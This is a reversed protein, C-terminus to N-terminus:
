TSALRPAVVSASFWLGISAVLWCTDGASLEIKELERRHRWTRLAIWGLGILVPLMTAGYFVPEASAPLDVGLLALQFTEMVSKLAAIGLLALWFAEWHAAQCRSCARVMITTAGLQGAGMAPVRLTTLLSTSGWTTWRGSFPDRLIPVQAPLTSYMALLTVTALGLGAWALGVAYTEVRKLM